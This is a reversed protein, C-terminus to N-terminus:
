LTFTSFLSFRQVEKLFNRFKERVEDKGIGFSQALMETLDDILQEIGVAEVRELLPAVFISLADDITTFYNSSDGFRVVYEVCDLMVAVGLERVERLRYFFDVLGEVYPRQDDSIEIEGTEGRERLRENLLAELNSLVENKSPLYLPVEAFRRKLADGLRFLLARDYLNMTAIIRLRKLRRLIENIDMKVDFSRIAPELCKISIEDRREV